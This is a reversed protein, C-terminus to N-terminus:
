DMSATALKLYEEARDQLETGSTLRSKEEETAATIKFDSGIILEGQYFYYPDGGELEDTNKRTLAFVLQHDRFYFEESSGENAAAPYTKIRKVTEDSTYVDMAQWGSSLDARAASLDISTKTLEAQSKEINRRYDDIENRMIVANDLEVAEMEPVVIEPEDVVTNETTSEACSFLGILLLFAPSIKFNKM